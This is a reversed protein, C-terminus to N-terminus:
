ALWSRPIPEKEFLYPLYTFFSATQVLLAVIWGRCFWVAYALALVDAAFFYREHMAPLLYPMLVLSVLAAQITAEDSLGAPHRRYLVFVLTAAAVAAVVLGARFFLDFQEDTLWQYLNTAGLKLSPFPLIRQNAYL